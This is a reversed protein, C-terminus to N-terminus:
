IAASVRAVYLRMSLMQGEIVARAEVADPFSSVAAGSADFRRVGAVPIDPIIEPADIFFGINGDNGPQTQAILADFAEWSGGAIRNRVTERALSGNKYCLMAMHSNPDVPNVFM